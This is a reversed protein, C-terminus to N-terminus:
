NAVICYEKTAYKGSVYIDTNRTIVFESLGVHTPNEPSWDYTYGLQTWPYGYEHFLKDTCDNYQIARLNNFWKRYAATVTEPMNLDCHTDATGNDPCPRFLDTPKVWVELFFTEVTLPQLGLLQRLRMNPDKQTKYFSICSDKIVPAATVWIDYIDTNYKGSDPFYSPDSKWSVMKVYKEDNIITDILNPNGIIPRLNYNIRDPTPNEAELMAASFLTDLYSIKDKILPLMKGKEIEPQISDVASVSQSSPTQKKCMTLSFAIIVTGLYLVTRKFTKITM